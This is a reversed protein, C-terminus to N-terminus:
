RPVIGYVTAPSGSGRRNIVGGVLVAGGRPPLAGLNALNELSIRREHYLLKSVAYTDDVGRDPGFTDSGLAGRRGLKGTAVLWEVAALGFGPQHIVGDADLGAYAPTGWKDGWGTWLCIAAGAPIPGHRREWDELDEVTLAYDPDRAAKDRVDIRVAPLLFDGPDMQDALVQGDNMHGPAGWHTGTHEGEKVYQLYFGDAPVTFATELTFEPDGPFGPTTAPDNVHALSVLRVQGLLAMVAGGADANATEDLM